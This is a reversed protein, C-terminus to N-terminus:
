RPKRALRRRVRSLTEPALGLYSAIMRLPVRSAIGPYTALFDRYQEDATGSLASLIWRERAAQLGQVGKAFAMAHGPIMEMMQENDRYSLRLVLSPEIAQFFLRSPTHTRASEPDGLWWGEAAFRLVHERGDEDLAYARLLGKVVFSTDEAVDGAHQLFEGRGLTLPVVMARVVAAHEESLPYRERLYALLPAVVDGPVVPSARIRKRKSV